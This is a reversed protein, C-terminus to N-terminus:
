WSTVIEEAAGVLGFTCSSDVEPMYTGICVSAEHAAGFIVSHRTRRSRM